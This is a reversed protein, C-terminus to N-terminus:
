GKKTAFQLANIASRVDGGSTEVLTQLVEKTPQQFGRNGESAAEVSLIRSLAKTLLSSAIPNFRHLKHSNHFVLYLYVFFHECSLSTLKILELNDSDKIFLRRTM